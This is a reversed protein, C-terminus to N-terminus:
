EDLGLEELKAKAPLGSSKEYGREDYYDDLLREIDDRSLTATRYYDTIQHAKGDVVLPKFWADPAKDDKRAFGERANLLKGITWARESAKMLEAPSKSIGTLASYLEAITDIHYFRNVQARNCLGLCNFLAYWDESYRSYRGPNFSSPGVVRKLAEGPIGMREGHRIFDEAPRGPDWSPSGGAAIHAGRPNTLQEFEMTGLGNLRPDRVTTLGKIHTILEEAPKGIERIIGLPGEALIRGLGERNATMEALVLATQIDNQLEIGGTDDKSLVGKQYLNVLVSLLASFNMDGLGYRNLTDKYKISQEYAQKSSEANFRRVTLHTMHTRLGAYPGEDLKVIVKDALPCSPCALPNRTQRHYATMDPPAPRLGNDQIVQRNPWKMIREHLRNVLRLFSLRDAIPTQVSGQQAVIAKLNKSGMVAALGGRGLTGAKDV